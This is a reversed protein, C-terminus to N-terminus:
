GEFLARGIRIMTAGEEIAVEFDSSMGMSLIRLARHMIGRANMKNQLEALMRFYPRASEPTDVLPAITMLGKLNLNRLRAIEKAIKQTDEPLIGFKTAEPSTKVELLIDQVKAIREAQTDIARAVDLSDVSQILDFIKVAEKVKNTQLHGILHWTLIHANKLIHPANYKKIAEQVRSEGIATIGASMAEQIQDIPRSKTVALLTVEQPNRKARLCASDIRERIRAM